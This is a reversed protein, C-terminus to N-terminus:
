HDGQTKSRFDEIKTFSKSLIRGLKEKFSEKDNLLDTIKEQFTLGEKEALEEIKDLDDPDIPYARNLGSEKIWYRTGGEPIVGEGSKLVWEKVIKISQDTTEIIISEGQDMNELEGKLGPKKKSSEEIDTRGKDLKIDRKCAPCKAYFPNKGTYTWNYGCHYCEVPVEDPLKEREIEVLSKEM